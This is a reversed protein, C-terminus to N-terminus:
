TNRKRARQARQRHAPNMYTPKKTRYTAVFWEGCCACQFRGAKIPHTAPKPPNLLPNAALGKAIKKTQGPSLRLLEIDEFSMRASWALWQQATQLDM